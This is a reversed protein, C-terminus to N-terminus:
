SVGTRGSAYQMLVRGKYGRQGGHKCYVSMIPCARAILIEEVQTLQQLCHPVPGPHMDSAASFRKIHHKDWKGKLQPHGLQGYSMVFQAHM